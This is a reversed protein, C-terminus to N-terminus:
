ERAPADGIVELFLEELSRRRAALHYLGVGQAALWRSMEPLLAENEVRLRVLGEDERVDHGFRALGELVAASRGELRLEVELDRETEALTTVRVVRGDKVFAVRDCTM